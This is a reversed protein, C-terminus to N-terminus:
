IERRVQEPVHETFRKGLVELQVFADSLKVDRAILHLLAVRSSEFIREFAVRVDDFDLHPVVLESLVSFVLDVLNDCPVVELGLLNCVLLEAVTLLFRM